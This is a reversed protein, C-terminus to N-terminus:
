GNILGGEFTEVNDALLEMAACAVGGNIVHTNDSFVVMDVGVYKIVVPKGEPGKMVAGVTVYGSKTLAHTKRLEAKVLSHVLNSGSGAKGKIAKISKLLKIDALLEPTVRMMSVKDTKTM